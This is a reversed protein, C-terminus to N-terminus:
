VIWFCIGNRDSLVMMEALAARFPSSSSLSTAASAAAPPSKPRDPLVLVPDPGPASPQELRSLPLPLLRTFWSQVNRRCASSLMAALGDLGLWSVPPWFSLRTPNLWHPM